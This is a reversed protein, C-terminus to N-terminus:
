DRSVVRVSLVADQMEPRTTEALAVLSNLLSSANGDSGVAEALEESSEAIRKLSDNIGGLERAIDMLTGFIEQLGEIEVAAV